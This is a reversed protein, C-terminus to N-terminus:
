QQEQEAASDTAPQETADKAGTIAGVISNHAWRQALVESRESWEAGIQGLDIVRAMLLGLVVMGAAAGLIPLRYSRWVSIRRPVFAPVNAQRGEVAAMVRASFGDDVVSFRGEDLLKNVNKM